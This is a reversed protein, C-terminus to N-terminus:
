ASVMGLFRRALTLADGPSGFVYRRPESDGPILATLRYEGPRFSEIQVLVRVRAGDSARTMAVPVLGLLAM